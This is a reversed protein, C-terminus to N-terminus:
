PHSIPRESGTAAEQSRLYGGFALGGALLIGLYAGTGLFQDFSLLKAVLAGLAAAGAVLHLQSVDPMAAAARGTRAALVQLVMAGALVVAAIGLNPHPNQVGNRNYTFGPATLGLGKPVGVAFHHWPLLFLDAILLLGAVAIIREGRTWSRGSRAPADADAM